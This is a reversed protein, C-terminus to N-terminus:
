RRVVEPLPVPRRSEYDFAVLGTEALVLLEGDRAIRQFLRISKQTMEGLHSEVCLEDFVSAERKLNVALDAIALGTAGQSIQVSLLGIERFPRARAEHLLGVAAETGLHGGYNIDTARVTLDHRFAYAPQEELQIRPM